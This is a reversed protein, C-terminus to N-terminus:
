RAIMEDTLWFGGENWHDISGYVIGFAFGFSLCLALGILETKVGLM